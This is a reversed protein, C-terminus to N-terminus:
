DRAAREKGPLTRYRPIIYDAPLGAGRLKVEIFDLDFAFFRGAPAARGGDRKIAASSWGTAPLAPRLGGRFARNPIM